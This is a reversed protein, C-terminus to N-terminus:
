KKNIDFAISYREFGAKETPTVLHSLYQPFMVMVGERPVVSIEMGYYPYRYLNKSDTVATKLSCSPDLLVLSGPEPQSKAVIKVKSDLDQTDSLAVGDQFGSTPFYVASFLTNGDGHIHPMHYAHPSNNYNAWFEELVFCDELVCKTYGVRRLYPKFYDFFTTQLQKFQEHRDELKTHSQWVGIGSRKEPSTLEKEKKIAELLSKNLQRSKEGLNIVTVPIPFLDLNMIDM